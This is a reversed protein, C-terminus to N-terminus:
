ILTSPSHHTGGHTYYPMMMMMLGKVAMSALQDSPFRGIFTDFKFDNLGKRGKARECSFVELM